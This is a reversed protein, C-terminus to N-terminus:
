ATTIVYCSHDIANGIGEWRGRLVVGRSAEDCIREFIDEALALDRFASAAADQTASNSRAMRSDLSRKANPKQLAHVLREVPWIVRASLHPGEMARAVALM